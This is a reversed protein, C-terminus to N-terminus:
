KQAQKIRRQAVGFYEDDIEMGIFNRGLNKCAIGTSGSGMFPDLITDGEDSTLNMLREMLAVPKQTPHEFHLRNFKVNIVDKERIGEEVQRMVSLSVYPKKLNKGSATISHASKYPETFAIQKSKLYNSIVSFEKPNKLASSLRKLDMEIKKFNPKEPNFYPVKVKRIKGGGLISITEHNRGIATFPTSSVNKEWIIEEKFKRGMGNLMCNWRHFSEGRGFFVILGKPKVIRDWENFVAQEDFIRDLRHNLYEYPPDTVITDVSNDPIKKMLELCDGKQLNIM